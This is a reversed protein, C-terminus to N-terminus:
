CSEEELVTIVDSLSDCKKWLLAEIEPTPAVMDPVMVPYLGAAHASRIGNPSDEIAVAEEPKVNLESCAKQYIDPMPKSHRVMDGGIIVRFYDTLGTSCLHERVKERRTSSALGILYGHQKLYQLLEKAGKMVPLGEKEIKENTLLSARTLFEEVPFDEGYHEKFFAIIDTRNRGICGYVALDINEIQMEEGTQKWCGISIRETDFLVGDMDFVIAKIRM